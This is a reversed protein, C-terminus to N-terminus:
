RRKRFMAKQLAGYRKKKIWHKNVPYDRVYDDGYNYLLEDGAKLNEDIIIYKGQRFCNPAKGPGPENIMSALFRMPNSPDQSPDGNIYYTEM